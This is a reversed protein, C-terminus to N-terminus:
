WCGEEVIPYLVARPNLYIWVEILAGDELIVTTRERVYYHPHEELADILELINRDVWYVEGKTIGPGRIAYPYGPGQHLRIGPAVARKGSLGKLLHHNRGRTKLTGYVFLAEKAM